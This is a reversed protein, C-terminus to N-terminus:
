QPCRMSTWLHSWLKKWINRSWLAVSCVRFSGPIGTDACSCLVRGRGGTWGGTCVGLCGSWVRGLYEEWQRGRRSSAWGRLHEPGGDPLWKSGAKKKRYGKCGMWQCTGSPRECFCMQPVPSLAPTHPYLTDSTLYALTHTTSYLRYKTIITFPFCSKFITYINFNKFFCM